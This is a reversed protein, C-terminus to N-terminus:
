IIICSLLRMKWQLFRDKTQLFLDREREENFYGIANKIVQDEKFPQLATMTMHRTSFCQERIFFRPGSVQVFNFIYPTKKVPGGQFYSLALGKPFESVKKIPNVIYDSM